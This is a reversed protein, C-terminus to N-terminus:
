RLSAAKAKNHAQINVIAHSVGYIDPNFIQSKPQQHEVVPEPPEALEAPEEKEEEPPQEFHVKM